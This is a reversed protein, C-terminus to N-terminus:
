GIGSCQLPPSSPLLVGGSDHPTTSSSESAEVEESADLALLSSLPLTPQYVWGIPCVDKCAVAALHDAALNGSRLTFSISFGAKSSFLNIIEQVISRCKWEHSEPKNLAVCDKLLLCDTEFIVKDHGLDIALLLARKLALAETMFASLSKIKDVFGWKFNGQFDRCIAGIGAESMQDKFSGDCNIKLFNTPPKVWRVNPQHPSILNTLHQICDNVKWFENNAQVSRQIVIYPDPPFHNFVWENRQKWINWLIHCILPLDNSSLANTGTTIQLWWAVFNNTHLADIRVGLPCGFWVWKTWCCEFFLHEITENQTECIPCIESTARRRKYLGAKTAIANSLARWIFNQIRPIVRIKWVRQWDTWEKGRM